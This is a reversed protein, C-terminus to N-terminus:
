GADPRKPSVDGPGGEPSPPNERMEEAQKEALEIDEDRINSGFGTVTALQRLEKMAIPRDIVQKDVLTSVATAITGTVTASQEDTMQWLSSFKLTLVKKPARGLESRYLLSYITEVGPRIRDEQLGHINDYYNRWDSEGTSNMGTPSQGFFRVMPIKAGGSLQQGFQLLIDSLGAFTYQDIQLEDDADLLTLGENSQFIRVMSFFNVLGQAAQQNGGLISRLGKIRVTRLHAKYVLQAAGQTTSDFALIRDWLPELVSLGWYNEAIRQWYPLEDGDLRIVRTHHLTTIPLGTGVDPWLKYSRPLGFEPGLDTNIDTVIPWVMWRDLPMIGKFQGRGVSDLELPSSPDQGDVMIYALSGGYLRAWKLAQCLKHWIRLREAGKHIQELDDPKDESTIEVGGRTMDEAPADVITRAVWNGRYAWELEMRNRSITNPDFRGGSSVNGTGIGTNTFLNTYSDNTFQWSEGGDATKLRPKVRPAKKAM